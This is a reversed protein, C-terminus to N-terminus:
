TTVRRKMIMFFGVLGLIAALAILGWESLSPVGSVPGCQPVQSCSTQSVWIEGGAINNNCEQPTQDDVCIGQETVCCGDAVVAGGCIAGGEGEFCIPEVIFFGGESECFSESTFCSSDPCGVCVGGPDGAPQDVTRCCGLMFDGGAVSNQPLALFFFGIILFTAIFISIQSKPMYM